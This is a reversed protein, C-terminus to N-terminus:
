TVNKTDMAQAVENSYRVEENALWGVPGLVVGCHLAGAMSEVQPRIRRPIAGRNLKDGNGRGCKARGREGISVIGAAM